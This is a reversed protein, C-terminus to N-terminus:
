AHHYLFQMYNRPNGLREVALETMLARLPQVTASEVGISRFASGDVQFRVDDVLCLGRESIRRWKRTEVIWGPALATSIIELADDTTAVTSLTDVLGGARLLGLAREAIARGVPLPMEFETRWCELGESSRGCLRKLKLANSRRRLKLNIRSSGTLLYVDQDEIETSSSLGVPTASWVDEVVPLDAATWRLEWTDTPGAAPASASQGESADSMHDREV